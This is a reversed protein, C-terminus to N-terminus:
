SRKWWPKKQGAHEKPPNQTSRHIMDRLKDLDLPSGDLFAIHDSYWLISRFRVDVTIESEHDRAALNLFELLAAVDEFWNASDNVSDLGINFAFSWLGDPEAQDGYGIQDTEWAGNEIFQNCRERVEDAKAAQVFGDTNLVVEDTVM